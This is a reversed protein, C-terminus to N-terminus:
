GPCQWSYRKRRFMWLIYCQVPIFYMPIIFYIETDDSMRRIIKYNLSLMSSHPPLHMNTYKLYLIVYDPFFSCPFKFFLTGFPFRGCCHQRSGFSVNGATISGTDYSVNGAAMSRRQLCGGLPPQRGWVIRWGGYRM